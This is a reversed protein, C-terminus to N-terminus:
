KKKNQDFWDLILEKDVIQYKEQTDFAKLILDKVEEETYVPKPNKIDTPDILYIPNPKTMLKRFEDFSYAKDGYIINKEETHNNIITVFGNTIRPKLKFTEYAGHNDSWEEVYDYEEMEIEVNKVEGKNYEGIFQKIYEPPIQHQNAIVKYFKDVAIDGEEYPSFLEFSTKLDSDLLIDGDEIKEDPDLSILILQLYKGGPINPTTTFSITDKLIQVINTFKESKILVPKVKKTKM